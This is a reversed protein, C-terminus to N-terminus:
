LIYINFSRAVALAFIDANLLMREIINTSQLYFAM